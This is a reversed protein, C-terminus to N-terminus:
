LFGAIDEVTEAIHDAGATELEERGGYGYLVGISELGNQRAGIIDNERDGVMMVQSLDDIHNTELVYRIVDGKHVRSDDMTAGGIFAFYTTLGFHDMIRKAFVEPKSTATMLLYGQAQLKELLQEMGPYVRNEFIGTKDFYERYKKVGEQAQEPNFGYYRMLSDSLPPGMWPRLASRDEVQIGYHRLMYEISNMIGDQSDTLTGDLDFLVYKKRMM